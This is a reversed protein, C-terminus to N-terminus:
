TYILYTGIAGHGMIGAVEEGCTLQLKGKSDLMHRAVSGKAKWESPVARTLDAMMVLRRRVAFYLSIAHESVAELNGNPTHSVTIGRAECAALDVHDTGTGLVAIFKLKPSVEPSLFVATLKVTTAVVITANELRAALEAPTTTNYVTMEYSEPPAVEFDPMRAHVGELVVIHHHM